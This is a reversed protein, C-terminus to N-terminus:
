KFMGAFKQREAKLAAEKKSKIKALEVKAAANDSELELVKKFDKEAGDWDKGDM